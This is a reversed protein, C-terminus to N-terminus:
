GKSSRGSEERQLGSSGSFCPLPRQDETSCLRSLLRDLEASFKRLRIPKGSRSCFCHGSTGAARLLGTERDAIRYSLTLRVGQYAAVRVFILVTDGFRVPSKYTCGIGTVPILLGSDELKRYGWGLQELYDLRAEEMWRIYNSHHIIGMRDTEYYNARRLYPRINRAETAFVSPEERGERGIGGQELDLLRKKLEIGAAYGVLSGDAGVVRHCPILIAIPNRNNAAGVARCADPSGIQEAIQRYSRTEGYPITRLADWVRKQFATGGPSLPLDFAKRKGAFYEALEEAARDTLESRRLGGTGAAEGFAVSTIARGDSAITMKGVATDYVFRSAKGHESKRNEKENEAM